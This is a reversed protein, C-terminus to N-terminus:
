ACENLLQPSVDVYDSGLNGKTVNEQTMKVKQCSCTGDKSVVGGCHVCKVKKEINM